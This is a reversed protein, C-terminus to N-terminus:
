MPLAFMTRRASAKRRPSPGAKSRPPSPAAYSNTVVSCPLLSGTMGLSRLSDLSRQRSQSEKAASIGRSRGAAEARSSLGAPECCGLLVTHRGRCESFDFPLKARVGPVHVPEPEKRGKAGESQE